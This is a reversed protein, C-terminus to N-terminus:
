LDDLGQHAQKALNALDQQITTYIARAIYRKLCRIIDKKTLGEKTRQQVYARTAPRWRMRGMAILHPTRNAARDGSRNLRHRNTKGNSAPIPSAACLAASSSENHLPTPNPGATILLQGAHQTSMGLLAM